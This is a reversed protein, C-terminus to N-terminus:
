RFIQRICFSQCDVSCKERNWRATVAFEGWHFASWAALYMGLQSTIWSPCSLGGTLFSYIGVSFVSGLLFSTTAAALPTNPIRGHPRPVGATPVTELSSPSTSSSHLDNSEMTTFSCPCSKSVNSPSQVFLLLGANAGIPSLRQSM